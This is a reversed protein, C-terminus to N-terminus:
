ETSRGLVDWHLPLTQRMREDALGAACVVFPGEYGLARSQRIMQVGTLGPMRVDTVVVRFRGAAGRLRQLAKWGDGATEVTYGAQTLAAKLAQLVQPNDDVCLVSM